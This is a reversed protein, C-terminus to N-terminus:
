KLLSKAIEAHRAEDDIIEQIKPYDRVLARYVVISKLEGKQLLGMVFNHGILKYLLVVVTAKIGKPKLIINTYSKIIAAHRGEDAAVELFLKKGKEHKVIVALRKYLEVADLEGQQTKLLIKKQEGTM